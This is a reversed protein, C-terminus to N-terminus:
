RIRLAKEVSMSHMRKMIEEKVDEPVCLKGALMSSLNEITLFGHEYAPIVSDWANQSIMMSAFADLYGKHESVFQVDQLAKKFGQVDVYLFIEEFESIENGIPLPKGEEWQMWERIRKINDPMVDLAGRLGTKCLLCFFWAIDRVESFYERMDGDPIDWDVRPIAKYIEAKRVPRRLWYCYALRCVLNRDYTDECSHYLERLFAPIANGTMNVEDCLRHQNMRGFASDGHTATSSINTCAQLVTRLVELNQKRSRSGAQLWATLVARSACTVALSDELFEAAEPNCAFLLELYDEPLYKIISNEEDRIKEEEISEELAISVALGGASLLATEPLNVDIARRGRKIRTIGHEFRVGREKLYLLMVSDGHILAARGTRYEGSIIKMSLDVKANPDLEDPLRLPLFCRNEFITDEAGKGSGASEEGRDEEIELLDLFEPNETVFFGRDGKSLWALDLFADESVRPIYRVIGFRNGYRETILRFTQLDENKACAALVERFIFNRVVPKCGACYDLMKSMSEPLKVAEAIEAAERLQKRAEEYSCLIRAIQGFATKVDMSVFSALERNEKTLFDFFVAQNEKRRRKEEEEFFRRSPMLPM